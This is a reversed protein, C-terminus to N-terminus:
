FFKAAMGQWLPWDHKLGGTWVDLCHPIGKTGLIQAMRELGEEAQERLAKSIRGKRATMAVDM